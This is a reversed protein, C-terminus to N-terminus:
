IEHAERITKIYKNISELEIQNAKNTQKGESSQVQDFSHITFIQSTEMNKIDLKAHM